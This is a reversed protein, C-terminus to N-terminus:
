SLNIVKYNDNNKFTSLFLYCQYLLAKLKLYWHSFFTTNSLGPSISKAIMKFDIRSMLINKPSTSIVNPSTYALKLKDSHCAKFHSEKCGPRVRPKLLLNVPVVSIGTFLTGM